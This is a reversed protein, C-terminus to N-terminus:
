EKGKALEALLKEARAICFQEAENSLFGRLALAGSGTVNIIAPNSCLGQLAAKAFEERKTLGGVNLFRYSNSRLDYSGSLASEDAKSM